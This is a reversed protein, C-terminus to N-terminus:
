AAEKKVSLSAVLLRLLPNEEQFRRELRSIESEIGAELEILLERTAQLSGVEELCSLVYRKGEDSMGGKMANSRFMGLVHDRYHLSRACGHVVLYSIKGEDLDECFGKQQAYLASHLNQYDDRIQFFRGLLRSLCSLDVQGDDEVEGSVKASHTWGQPSGALMLRALLRFLGGTKLDIMQLYEEETPVHLHHKWYLDWGQGVFLNGVEDLLADMAQFSGMQHVLKVANVYVYTASNISQAEGFIVHAAPKGRRLVSGDEIDDLVLSSNHLMDITQKAVDTTERGAHLWINLAEILATRFGKSPLKSVYDCPALAHSEDLTVTQHSHGNEVPSQQLELFGNQHGVSGNMEGGRSSSTNGNSTTGNPITGNLAAGNMAAGNTTSGNTKIGNLGHGNTQGAKLKTSGSEAVGSGTRAESRGMASIESLTVRKSPAAPPKSKWDNHRPCHSCWYHNGAVVAGCGEIWVRLKYPLSPNDRYLKDKNEQFEAEYKLIMNKVTDLAVTEPVKDQRMIFWVANFVRGEGQSSSQERERDWSYYDNTLMLAREASTRAPAFLAEDEKTPFFSIGFNVM